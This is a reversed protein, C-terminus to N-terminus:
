ESCCKEEVIKVIEEFVKEEIFAGMRDQLIYINDKNFDSKSEDREIYDFINNSYSSIGYQKAYHEMRKLFFKSNIEGEGVEWAYNNWGSERGLYYLHSLLNRLFVRNNDM